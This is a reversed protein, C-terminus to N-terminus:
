VGRLQAEEFRDLKYTAIHRKVKKIYAGHLESYHYLGDMLKSGSIDQDQARLQARIQRMSKYAPNANLNRMYSRVSDALSEYAKVGTSLTVGHTANKKRIAHSTGHGTEEIAQALAMAVPIEDVRKVLEPLKKESFDALRYEDALDQLWLWDGDTVGQDNEIASQIKLLRTRERAIDNNAELILPLLAKIFLEKRDDHDLNKNFDQPLHALYIAPVSLVPQKKNYLDLAYNYTDFLAILEETNKVCVGNLAQPCSAAPQAPASSVVTISKVQATASFQPAHMYGKAVCLYLVLSLILASAAIFRSLCFNIKKLVSSHKM